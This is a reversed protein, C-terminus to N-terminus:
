WRGGLRTSGFFPQPTPKAPPASPKGTSRPVAPSQTAKEADVEMRMIAATLKLMDREPSGKDGVAGGERAGAVTAPYAPYTVPGVDFLRLEVLERIYIDGERRQNQRITEFAFSSGSVDGRRLVALVDHATHTDPADIEYRLGKADVSLRLTGSTNRGLILSADHNFLARVDDERIARDFAGPLIREEVDDSLAFVTGPDSARYFVAAYGVIKPPGSTQPVITVPSRTAISRREISM